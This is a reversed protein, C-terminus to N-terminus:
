EKPNSLKFLNSGGYSPTTGIKILGCKELVKESVKNDPNTTGFIEKLKLTEFGYQILTNAIETAYGKGWQHVPLRYGVEYGSSNQNLELHILVGLGVFENSEKLFVMFGGFSPNTKMYDIYKNFSNLADEKSGHPRSNYHKMVVPDMDM